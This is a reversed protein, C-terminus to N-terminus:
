LSLVVCFVSRWPLCYVGKEYVDRRNLVPLPFKQKSNFTFGNEMVVTVHVEYNQKM